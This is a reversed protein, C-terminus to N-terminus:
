CHPCSGAGHVHHLQCACTELRPLACAGAEKCAKVMDIFYQQEAKRLTEFKEVTDIEVQLDYRM